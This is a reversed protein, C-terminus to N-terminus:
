GGFGLVTGQHGDTNVWEISTIVSRLPWTGNTYEIGAITQGLTWTTTLRPIRLEGGRRLRMWQQAKRRTASEISSSDDCYATASGVDDGGAAEPTPYDGSARWEQRFTGSSHDLDAEKGGLLYAHRGTHNGVRDADVEDYVPAGDENADSPHRVTHAIRHDHPIAFSARVTLGTIYSIGSTYDDLNKLGMSYTATGYPLNMLTNRISDVRVLGRADVQLDGHPGLSFSTSGSPIYEFHIQRRAQTQLDSAANDLFSSILSPLVPRSVHALTTTSAIGIGSDFHWDPDIRYVSFIDPYRLFACRLSEEPRQKDNVMGSQIAGSLAAKGTDTWAPLLGMSGSTSARREVMVYAGAVSVRTFLKSGDEVLSGAIVDEPYGLETGSEPRLINIGEDLSSYRTRVFALTPQGESAFDVSLGFGGVQEALDHLADATNKGLYSEERCRIGEETDLEAGLGDPWIIGSPLVGAEPYVTRNSNTLLYRLHQVLMWPEWYCAQTASFEHADYPEQGDALGFRPECFVFCGAGECFIANPEGYQNPIAPWGVRYFGTSGPGWFSGVIPVGKLLWRCDEILLIAYDTKHDFEHSIKTVHGRFCEAYDGGTNIARIVGTTGIQISDLPGGRVAAISPAAEDKGTSLPIKCTARGPEPGISHEIRECTWYPGAKLNQGIDIPFYPVLSVAVSDVSSIQDIIANAPM